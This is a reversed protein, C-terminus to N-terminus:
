LRIGGISLSMRIEEVPVNRIWVENGFPDKRDLVDRHGIIHVDYRFLVEWGHEKLLGADIRHRRVASRAFAAQRDFEQRGKTCIIDFQDLGQEDISRRISLAGFFEGMSVIGAEDGAKLGQVNMVTECVFEPAPWKQLLLNPIDAIQRLENAKVARLRIGRGNPGPSLWDESPNANWQWQLGPKGDAFDDSNAPECPAIDHKKVSPKRYAIVPEGCTEGDSAQGIVPWGDQWRMPQLHVIRGGAFVDQFHLFWDEGTVTDVWAGQHPGNVPSNGQQMVIRYEYPGEISDARLVTQFGGKVGGAPAFIYYRGDRKYVKPGEIPDNETGRGDYIIRADSLVQMGDSSLDHIRLVSKYGKRSGAVATILYTKGDDDFFPCPDIVGAEPLICVPEDWKEAPDKARSVYIGEDPMPFYVYFYGKHYRISPAWVGCGHIPNLYRYAPVRDCVYNIVKWNVLDCSHLVPIAPANSFSSSILYYDDGHRIVDPDSYDGYIVPNRYTGDGQDSRNLM